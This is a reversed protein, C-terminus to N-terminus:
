RRRRRGRNRSRGRRQRSQEFQEQTAEGAADAARQAAERAQRLRTGVQAVLEGCRQPAIATGVAGGDVFGLAAGLLIWGM